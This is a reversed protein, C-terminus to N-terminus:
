SAGGTLGVLDAMIENRLSDPKLVEARDVMAYLWSRFAVRNGCPVEVEVSGDSRTAVIADDGLERVVGPAIRRDLRVRAVEADVGPFAKADREFATALDFGAPRVFSEPAGITAVAEFRDVRYTVQAQRDTDFAVLYWFGSRSILGYPHVTRVRGHYPFSIQCSKSIASWLQPLEQSRADVHAVTHSPSEDIDGGLWQVAQKGWQTDIQVLAAAQQLASLEDETLDFNILKYEARDISYATKGADSGGLVQMTIPVGLKRLSKKDREFATRRAESKVPYQNEMYNGIDELTLPRNSETLLAVLNLMREASNIIPKSSASAM